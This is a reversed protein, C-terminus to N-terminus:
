SSSLELPTNVYEAICKPIKIFSAFEMWICELSEIYAKESGSGYTGLLHNYLWAESRNRSLWTFGM